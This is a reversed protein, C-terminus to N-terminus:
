PAGGPEEPRSLTALLAQLLRPVGKYGDDAEHERVSDLAQMLRYGVGDTASLQRAAYDLDIRVERTGRAYLAVYREYAERWFPDQSWHRTVGRTARSSGGADRLLSGHAEHGSEDRYRRTAASRPWFSPHSLAAVTCTGGSFLPVDRRLAGTGASGDITAFTTAELWPELAAGGLPALLRPVWVGLTLVLRPRQAELQERLFRRCREVFATDSAGPFRGTTAAGERLGMYVNTFFCTAPEIEAEALWGLLSRWTPQTDPEAGAALSARYGAESHFDHGLVMVGAVPLRPPPAKKEPNWLGFGGPFFATGAIPEPVPLCGAPYPAVTQHRKWLDEINMRVAKTWLARVVVGRNRVSWYLGRGAHGERVLRGRPAPAWM